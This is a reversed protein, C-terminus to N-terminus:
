GHFHPIWIEANPVAVTPHAALLLGAFQLAVFFLEGVYLVVSLGAM